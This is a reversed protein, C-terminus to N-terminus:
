SVTGYIGQYTLTGSALAAGTDHTVWVGWRQPISGGFCSAVSVSSFSYATSGTNNTSIWAALLLGADRVEDSAVTLAADSGTIGAPYSPSDTQQAYVYVLISKGNSLGSSATTVVGSLLYDIYLNSANSVVDSERGSLSNADSGLSALTIGLSASSSYAVKQDVM